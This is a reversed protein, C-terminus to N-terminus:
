TRPRTAGLLSMWAQRKAQRHRCTNYLRILCLGGAAFTRNEPADGLSAGVRLLSQYIDEPMEDSFITVADARITITSFRPEKTDGSQNLDFLADIANRFDQVLDHPIPYKAMM